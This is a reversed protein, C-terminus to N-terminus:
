ELNHGVVRHVSVASEGHGNDFVAFGNAFELHAFPRVGMISFLPTSSETDLVSISGLIM